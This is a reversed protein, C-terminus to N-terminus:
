NSSKITVDDTEEDRNSSTIMVHNTEKGRMTPKKIPKKGRNSSKIMVDNTEKGRMAPKTKPKKM